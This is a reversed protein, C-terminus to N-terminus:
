YCESSLWDEEPFEVVARKNVEILEKETEGYFPEYGCLLLYLIVGASFEDVKNEYGINKGALFIEPAVYGVTGCRGRVLNDKGVFTANGFDGVNVHTGYRNSKNAMLINAPKLDRHAIGLNNMVDICKLIDYMIKSAELESLPQKKKIYQYLDTGGLLELELVVKDETEFFSKLRLFGKHEKAQAILAAQVCTERVLSDARENGQKVNKWFLNKDVIKLACEYEEESLSLNSFSSFSPKKKLIGDEGGSGGGSVAFSQQFSSMAKSKGQRRGPRISAYRGRGLEKGMKSSDYQFLDEIKLKAAQSLCWLWRETEILSKLRILVTCRTSKSQHQKFELNLTHEFNEHRRVVAGQLFAYGCPRRLVDVDDKYELLYNQRLEFHASKWSLEDDLAKTKPNQKAVHASGFKICGFRIKSSDDESSAGVSHFKEFVIPRCMDIIAPLILNKSEETWSEVGKITNLITSSEPALTSEEEVPTM